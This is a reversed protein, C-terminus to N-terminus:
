DTTDGFESHEPYIFQEIIFNVYSSDNTTVWYKGVNKKIFVPKVKQTQAIVPELLQFFYLFTLIKLM